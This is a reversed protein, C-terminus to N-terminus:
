AADLVERVKQALANAAFPKQMFPLGEELVGHHVIADETYGSTYLVKLDPNLQALSEHLERGNGGPMVVDTLLLSIQDRHAAFLTEAEAPCAACFVQYGLEILSRRAIELVTPEDEVVLVGESGGPVPSEETTEDGSQQSAESRPLYIKFTSGKGPESYVWIHGNHQKVIGYVTALGLGTGKGMEKTTFFPEFIRAQTAEDMGRGTDSVAIMVCPGPEAQVHTKVYDEGLNINATEITLRGGNPMADRANLALNMLVQEIQGPDVCVRGIPTTPLFELEVDEGILRALMRTTGDILDNLDLVEPQLPQRRSFALLQRTLGAARDSLQVVQSLDNHVPTGKSAQAMALSAYGKIGTLLNNFDHAVGGALQGIAELKQSQRLQEELERRETLDTIVGVLGAVSDDARLFTAKTFMANRLSGDSHLVQSEYVQTGPKRFLSADKERYQDALETPAVDYADKGVIQDKPKGLFSEFARNCGRYIGAADKYFIPSPISDLLQSLFHCQEDVRAEASKRQSIDVHCGLMRVPTGAADCLMEGKTFVWRHSGDRHRLRFEVAYEPVEGRLYANLAALTAERDDPHLRTEWEYYRNPVEHDEYGLQRKWESSFHVTNTRLDWDWHGINSARLALELRTNAEDRARAASTHSALAELWQELAVAHYEHSGCGASPVYHINNHLQTGTITLPHTCLVDMLLAPDFRQRHFQCLGLCQSGTLVDNLGAEYEILGQSGPIGRLAWTMEGTIRLGTYGESLARDTEARVLDTMAKPDFTGDRTYVQSATCVQLQGSDLLPEADVGDECLYGAITKPEHADAIYIVKQKQEIGGRLFPALVARHEEESDYLLCIHDGPQLDELTKPLPREHPTDM